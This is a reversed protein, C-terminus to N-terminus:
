LDWKTRTLPIHLSVLSITKFTPVYSAVKCLSFPQYFLCVQSLLFVVKQSMESMRGDAQMHGRLSLVIAPEAQPQRDPEADADTVYVALPFCHLLKARRSM